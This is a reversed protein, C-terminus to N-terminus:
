ARSSWLLLLLLWELLLLQSPLSTLPRDNPPQNLGGSEVSQHAFDSNVQKMWLSDKVATERYM